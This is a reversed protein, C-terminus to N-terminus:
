MDLVSKDRPETKKQHRIENMMFSIALAYNRVSSRFDGNSAARKATECLGNFHSWDLTWHENRTAERLQSALQAASQVADANPTCDFKAYPGKGFPGHQSPVTSAQPRSLSQLLAAVGSAAGVLVSVLAAAYYRAIALVLAVLLAMAMLGWWLPHVPSPKDPEVQLAENGEGAPVSEVRVVIATINDPGGRLNAVDVLTRVAEGPSLTGLLAGLEEDKVQGSLGDSCLLFTDGPELALPGELDVQVDAHPGLSRTIINKPIFNAVDGKPMQGAAMMEWVLSHDFTLQEFRGGRLRYVRSDGVHAVVAQRPLLVLACCTTGMGQFEANAQGRAHISANATVVAHRLADAPSRDLSKRYTHPVSECAIKSALEGAAHAGMGDAVMFLHGRRRWDADDGALAVALSDQNSGRRLGVDSLSAQTISKRADGANPAAETMLFKTCHNDTQELLGM